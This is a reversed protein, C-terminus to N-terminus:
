PRPANLQRAEVVKKAYGKWQPDPDAASRVRVVSGPMELVGTTM